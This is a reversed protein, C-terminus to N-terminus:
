LKKKKKLIYEEPRIKLLTKFFGVKDSTRNSNFAVEAGVSGGVSGSSCGVAALGPGSM